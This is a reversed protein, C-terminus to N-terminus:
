EVPKPLAEAKADAKVPAPSEEVIEADKVANAKDLLGGMTCGRYRRTVTIPNHFWGM